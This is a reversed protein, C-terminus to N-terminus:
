VYIYGKFGRVDPHTFIGFIKPTKRSTSRLWKDRPRGYAKLDSPNSRGNGWQLVTYPVGQICQLPPILSCSFITWQQWLKSISSDADRQGKSCKTNKGLNGKSTLNSNLSPPNLHHLVVHHVWSRRNTSTGVSTTVQTIESKNLLFINEQGIIHM